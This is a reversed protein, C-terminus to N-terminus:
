VMAVYHMRQLDIVWFCVFILQLNSLLLQDAYFEREVSVLNLLNQSCFIKVWSTMTVHSAPVLLFHVCHNEFRSMSQLLIWFYIKPNPLTNSPQFMYGAQISKRNTIFDFGSSFTNELTLVFALGFKATFGASYILQENKSDLQHIVNKLRNNSINCVFSSVLASLQSVLASSHLRILSSNLRILSSHLCLLFLHLRILSPPCVISSSHLCILSWHLHTFVFSLCTCVFSVCILVSTWKRSSELHKLAKVNSIM